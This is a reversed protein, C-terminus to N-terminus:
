VKDDTKVIKIPEEKPQELTKDWADLMNSMLQRLEPSSKYDKTKVQFWNAYIPNEEDDTIVLHIKRVKYRKKIM